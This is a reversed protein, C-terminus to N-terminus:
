RTFQVNIHCQYAIQLGTFIKCVRFSYPDISASTEFAAAFGIMPNGM